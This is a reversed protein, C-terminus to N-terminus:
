ALLVGLIKATKKLAETMVELSKFYVYAASKLIEKGTQSVTSPIDIFM